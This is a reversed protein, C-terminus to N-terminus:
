GRNKLIFALSSAKGEILLLALHQTEVRKFRVKLLGRGQKFCNATLFNQPYNEGNVALEVVV